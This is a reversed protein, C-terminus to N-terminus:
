RVVSINLHCNALQRRPLWRYGYTSISSGRCVQLRAQIPQEGSRYLPSRFSRREKSCHRCATSSDPAGITEIQPPSGVM